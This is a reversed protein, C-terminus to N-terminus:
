VPVPEEALQPDYGYADFAFKAREYIRRKTAPDMEFRNRKYDQVAAMQPELTARLEDFGGLGTAEYFGALTGVPDASLDEYAVEYLLGDAVKGKDREYAAITDVYDDLPDMAADSAPRGLLGNERWMTRRLHETSSHVAYPDRHIYLFRARPFMGALEGVRLTHSPSKMCLPKPRGDADTHRVSLKRMFLTITERWQAREADSMTEPDFFRKYRAPDEPFAMMRYPSCLSLLCLAIEDEQPLDWGCPVNDMPRSKPLTWATLPAAWSETALFHHPFLCEYLTPFGFQRDQCMLNHLLTTGSRWHGVIFVPEPHIEAAAVRRGHTAKEVWKWASNYAAMLPLTAIQGAKPLGMPPRMALLKALRPLDLGHWMTLPGQSSKKASTTTAVSKPQSM